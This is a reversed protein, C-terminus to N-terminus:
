GYLKRFGDEVQKVFNPDRQAPNHYRPDRMLEQLSGETIGDTISGGGSFSGDKMNEMIIELAMIGEATECMREIAPSVEEPFFKTAFASAVEVRTSANDGLRKAEAELDPVNGQIASMYMEVGKEFDEQGYGNQYSHESWWKMLDSDLAEAEDISDPMKYEGASDPRNAYAEKTIEDTIQKRIDEEKAGIKAELSKYGKALDEASNYKEPLWEPREGTPAPPAGTAAEQTATQPLDSEKSGILSESM